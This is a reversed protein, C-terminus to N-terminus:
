GLLLAGLAGPTLPKVIYGDFGAEAALRRTASDSSGSLAILRMNSTGHLTRLCQAVGCGDGDPLGLDILALDPKTDSAVELAQAASGAVIARHGLMCILEDMLARCDDDDEVV